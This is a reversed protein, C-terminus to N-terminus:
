FSWVKPAAFETFVPIGLDSIPQLVIEEGTKRGISLRTVGKEVMGTVIRGGDVLRAALQKPLYEMAGDVIILSFPGPQKRGNFAQAPALTPAEIDLKALVASLYSSASIVLVAEGPQPAAENLLRGHVLPSPLYHSESLAIARDIYASAQQAPPVFAEREVAGFAELLTPKNVGSVRLQSDIMAKRAVHFDVLTDLTTM